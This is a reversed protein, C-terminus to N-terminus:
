IQTWWRNSSFHPHTQYHNGMTLNLCVCHERNMHIRGVWRLLHLDLDTMLNDWWISWGKELYHNNKCNQDSRAHPNLNNYEMNRDGMCQLHLDGRERLHTLTRVNRIRFWGQNKHVWILILGSSPLVKPLRNSYLNKAHTLTPPIAVGYVIKM